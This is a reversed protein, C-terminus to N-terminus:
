AGVKVLEDATLTVTKDGVEVDFYTGEDNAVKKVKGIKADKDFAEVTEATVISGEAFMTAFSHSWAVRDGAKFAAM